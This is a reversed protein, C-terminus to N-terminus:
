VDSLTTWLEDEKPIKPWTTSSVEYLCRFLYKEEVETWETWKRKEKSKGPTCGDSVHSRRRSKKPMSTNPADM